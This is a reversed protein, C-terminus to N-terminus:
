LLLEGEVVSGGEGGTKGVVAVDEGSCDLVDDGAVGALGGMVDGTTGPPITVTKGHLILDILLQVDSM